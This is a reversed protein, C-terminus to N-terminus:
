HRDALKQLDEADLLEVSGRSLRVLGESQFYRLMRTVVERATGLHNALAEHTIKLTATGNLAREELLLAALRRDMSQWLIQELLWMVESFRRGMIENTVNAVAASQEMLNQYVEAPILWLEADQEAVITVDFRISHLVCPASFLCLEEPLLRYLTIERGESSLSYVRLQGSQLLLLGTCDREGAHLVTGKPVTRLRAAEHLMQQQQTTLTQWFPLGTELGMTWGGKDSM